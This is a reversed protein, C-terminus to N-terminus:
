YEVLPKDESEKEHLLACGLGYDYAHIDLTYRQGLRALALINALM